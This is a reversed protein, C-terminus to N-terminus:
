PSANPRAASRRAAPSRRSRPPRSGSRLPAGCATSAHDQEVLDLLRVRVHEVHQQLHEVVAPHGVALAARDVELVRDDHHRRVEARVLDLLHRVLPSSGASILIATIASTFACKRGSNTLRISSITTNWGSPLLGSRSCRACGARLRELLPERLELDPEVDVVRRELCTAAPRSRDPRRRAAASARSGAASRSDARWPSGPPRTRAPSVIWTRSFFPCM